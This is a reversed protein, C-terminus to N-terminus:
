YLQMGGMLHKATSCIEVFQIFRQTTVTFFLQAYYNIELHSGGEMKKSFLHIKYFAIELKVKM